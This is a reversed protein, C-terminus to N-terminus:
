TVGQEDLYDYQVQCNVCMPMYDEFLVQAGNELQTKLDNVPEGWGWSFGRQYVEAELKELWEGWEPYFFAAENREAKTQMTGCLCEGSRCLNKTVPNEFVNPIGSLYDDRESKEWKHILSVWVNNPASVDINVPKPKTKRRRESENERAGNLLAVAIGRRGKRFNQSVAKRLPDAKLLHYAFEHARSGLGFFGKRLVYKEYTDGADAIILRENNKEAFEQVYEVVDPIGTRTNVHILADIPIGLEKATYYTSLSDNGGSFAMLTYSFQYEKNAEEWIQKSTELIKKM